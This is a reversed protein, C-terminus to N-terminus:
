PQAGMDRGGEGKGKCPSGRLLAYDGAGPDALLPSGGLINGGMDLLSQGLGEADLFSHWARLESGGNLFFDTDNGWVICSKLMPRSGSNAELGYANDAITLNVLEPTAGNKCNIGAWGNRVVLTNSVTAQSNNFSIAGTANDGEIIGRIFYGKDIRCHDLRSGDERTDFYILGGYPGNNDSTFVVPASSKGKAQLRGEVRLFGRDFGTGQYDTDTGGRFQVRVGHRIRLTQGQPVIAEGLVLYPSGSRKWTGQVEQGPEILTQAWLGQGLLLLLVTAFTNKM